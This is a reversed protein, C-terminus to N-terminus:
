QTEPLMQENLVIKWAAFKLIKQEFIPFIYLFLYAQLYAYNSPSNLVLLFVITVYIYMHKSNSGREKRGGWIGKLAGKQFRGM